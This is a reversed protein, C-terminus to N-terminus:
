RAHYVSVSVNYYYYYYFYNLRNRAEVKECSWDAPNMKWSISAASCSCM